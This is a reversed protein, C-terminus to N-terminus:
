KRLGDAANRAAKEIVRAADDVSKATNTVADARKDRRNDNTLYFFGIALILAIAVLAFTLGSGRPRGMGHIKTRRAGERSNIAM